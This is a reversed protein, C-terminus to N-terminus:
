VQTSLIELYLQFRIKVRVRTRSLSTFFFTKFIDFKSVNTRSRVSPSCDTEDGVKRQERNETMERGDGMSRGRKETDAERESEGGRRGRRQQFLWWNGETNDKREIERWRRWGMWCLPEEQNAAPWGVGDRDTVRSWTASRLSVAGHAFWYYDEAPTIRYRLIDRLAGIAEEHRESWINQNAHTTHNHKLSCVVSYVFLSFETFFWVHASEPVRPIDTMHMSMCVFVCECWCVTTDQSDGLSLDDRKIYSGVRIVVKMYSRGREEGLFNVPLASPSFSFIHDQEQRMFFFFFFFFFM